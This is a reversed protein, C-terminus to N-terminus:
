RPAALAVFRGTPVYVPLARSTNKSWDTSTAAYPLSSGTIWSAVSGLRPSGYWTPGSPLLALMRTPSPRSSVGGAVSVMSGPTSSRKESSPCSSTLACMTALWQTGCPASTALPVAACGIVNVDLRATGCGPSQAPRYKASATAGVVDTECATMAYAPPSLPEVPM